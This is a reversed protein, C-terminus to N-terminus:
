RPIEARDLIYVAGNTADLVQDEIQEGDAKQYGEEFTLKIASGDLMTVTAAKHATLSAKTTVGKAVYHKYIRLCHEKDAVLQRMERKTRQLAYDNPAVLTFPGGTALENEMGAAAVVKLFADFRREAKLAAILNVTGLPADSNAPPRPQTSAPTSEPVSTSSPDATPATTGADSATVREGSPAGDIAWAYLSPKDSSFVTAVLYRTTAKIAPAPQCWELTMRLVYNYTPTGDAHRTGISKEVEHSVIQFKTSAPRPPFTDTKALKDLTDYASFAIPVKEATATWDALEKQLSDFMQPNVKRQLCIEDGSFSAYRFPQESRPSYALDKDPVPTLDATVHGLWTRNDLVSKVQDQFTVAACGTVALWVLVSM